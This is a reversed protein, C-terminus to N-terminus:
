RGLLQPIQGVVVPLIHHLTQEDIAPLPRHQLAASVLLAKLIVSAATAALGQLAISIEDSKWRTRVGVEAQHADPQLPVNSLPASRDQAM